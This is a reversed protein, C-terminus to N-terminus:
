FEISIAAVLHEVFHVPFFNESIDDCPQILMDSLTNYEKKIRSFTNLCFPYGQIGELVSYTRQFKGISNDQMLM